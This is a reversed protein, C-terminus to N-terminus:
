DSIRIQHSTRASTCTKTGDITAYCLPKTDEIRHIPKPHLSPSPWPTRGWLNCHLGIFVKGLFNLMDQHYMRRGSIAKFCRFALFATM